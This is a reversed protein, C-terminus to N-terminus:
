CSTGSPRGRSCKPRQKPRQKRPWAMAQALGAERVNRVPSVRPLEDRRQCGIRWNGAQHLIPANHRICGELGGFHVTWAPSSARLLHGHRNGTQREERRDGDREGGPRVRLRQPLPHLLTDGPHLLAGRLHLLPNGANSVPDLLAYVGGDIEHGVLRCRLLRPFFEVGHGALGQCAKKHLLGLSCVQEFQARAVRDEVGPFKNKEAQRGASPAADRDRADVILRM